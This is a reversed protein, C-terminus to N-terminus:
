LDSPSEHWERARVARGTHSRETYGELQSIEVELPQPKSTESPATRAGSARLGSGGLKVLLEAEMQKELRPIEDWPDAQTM